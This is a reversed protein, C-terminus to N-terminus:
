ITELWVKTIEQGTVYPKKNVKLYSVKLTKAKIYRYVTRRSIKLKEETQKISYRATPTVEPQVTTMITITRKTNPYGTNLYNLIAENRTHMVDLQKQIKQLLAKTEESM